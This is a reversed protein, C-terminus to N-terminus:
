KNLIYKYLLGNTDVLFIEIQKEREWSAVSAFDRDLLLKWKPNGEWDFIHLEKGVSKRTGSYICYIYNKTSYTNVFYYKTNKNSELTYGGRTKLIDYAPKEYRKGTLIKYLSTDKYIDIRESNKYPLFTIKAEKNYELSAANYMAKLSLKDGENKSDIHFPLYGIKSRIESKDSLTFIRSNDMYYSTGIFTSDNVLGLERSGKAEASLLIEKFPMFENKTIASSIDFKIAKQIIADFGFLTNNDIFALSSLSLMQNKGGGREILSDIKVKTNLNYVSFLLSDSLNSVFLVSDKLLMEMPDILRIGYQELKTSLNIVNFEDEKIMTFHEKM